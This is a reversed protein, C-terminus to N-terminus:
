RVLRALPEFSRTEVLEAAVGLAELAKPTELTPSCPTEVSLPGQPEVLSEFLRPEVLEAAAGLAELAKPTELRSSCV